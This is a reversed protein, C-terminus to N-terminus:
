VVDWILGFVLLASSALALVLRIPNLDYNPGLALDVYLLINNLCLGVFCVSSWLLLQSPRRMYGRFLLFACGFSTLGCLVYVVEKM